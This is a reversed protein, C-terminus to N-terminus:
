PHNRPLDVRGKIHANPHIITAAKPATDIFDDITGWVEVHGGNRVTGNVMGHIMATAGQEVILDGTVMGHLMLTVGAAVTAEVTVMGHLISDETFMYPGDIKGQQKLM